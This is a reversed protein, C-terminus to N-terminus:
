PNATTAPEPWVHYGLKLGDPGAIETRTRIANMNFVLRGYITRQDGKPLANILACAYSWRRASEHDHHREKRLSRLADTIGFIDGLALEESKFWPQNLITHGLLAAGEEDDPMVVAMDEFPVGLFAFLDQYHDIKAAPHKM